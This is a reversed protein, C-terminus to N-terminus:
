FTFLLVKLGFLAQCWRKIMTNDMYIIYCSFVIAYKLPPSCVVILEVIVSNYGAKHKLLLFFKAFAFAKFSYIKPLFLFFKNRCYYLYM